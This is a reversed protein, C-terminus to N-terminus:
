EFFMVPHTSNDEVIEYDIRLLIACIEECECLLVIGHLDFKVIRSYSIVSARVLRNRSAISFRGLLPAQEGVVSCRSVDRTEGRTRGRDRKGVVRSYISARARAHM